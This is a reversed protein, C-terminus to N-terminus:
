KPLTFNRKFTDALASRGKPKSTPDSPAALDGSPAMTARDGATRGPLQFEAKFAKQTATLGIPEPKTAAAPKEALLSAIVRKEAESREPTATPIKRPQPLVVASAVIPAAMEFSGISVGEPYQRRVDTLLDPTCYVASPTSTSV